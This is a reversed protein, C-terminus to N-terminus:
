IVRRILKTLLKSGEYSPEIENAYFQPENFESNIDIFGFSYKTATEKIVENLRDVSQIIVDRFQPNRIEELMRSGAFDFCPYYINLVHVPINRSNKFKYIDSYLDNLQEKFSNFFEDTSLNQQILHLAGLGDNGGVSLFVSSISDIEKKMEEIQFPIIKIVAGDLAYLKCDVGSEKLVHEVDEHDFNVYRRNDFISDGLLAVKMKIKEKTSM